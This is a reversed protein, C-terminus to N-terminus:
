LKRSHTCLEAIRYIRVLEHGVEILREILICNEFHNSAHGLLLGSFVFLSLCFCHAFQRDNLDFLLVAFSVPLFQFWWSASDATVTDVNVSFAHEHWTSVDVM